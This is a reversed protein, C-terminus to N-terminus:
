GYLFRMPLWAELHARTIGLPAPPSSSLGVQKDMYLYSYRFVDDIRTIVFLHGTTYFGCVIEDDM